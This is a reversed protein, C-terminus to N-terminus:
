SPGRRSREIKLAAAVIAKAWSPTEVLVDRNRISGNQWDLLLRPRAKGSVPAVISNDFLKLSELRPLLLVLNHRSRTYRERIIEAPIDHGGAVVRATVREIHMEASDLALFWMRIAFGCDAAHHLTAAITRGGLTTEFAFNRRAEISEELLRKGERWAIENAREAPLRRELERLRRAVEDPNYYQGGSERIMEGVISSKGAGNPGAIVWLAPAKERPV